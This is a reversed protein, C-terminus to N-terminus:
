HHLVQRCLYVLDKENSGQCGQNVICGIFVVSAKLNDEIDRCLEDITRGSLVADVLLAVKTGTCEGHPRVVYPSEDGLALLIQREGLSIAQGLDSAIEYM